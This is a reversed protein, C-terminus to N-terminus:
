SELNRACDGLRALIKVHRSGLEWAASDREQEGVDHSGCLEQVVDSRLPEGRKEGVVAARQTLCEGGIAADLDVGGAVREEDREAGGGAGDRRCALRHLCQTIAGHLHADADVGALRRPM